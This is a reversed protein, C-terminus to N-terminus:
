CNKLYDRLALKWNRLRKFKTNLLISYRPRKALTKYELTQCPLIKIKLKKIKIIEKALKYWTTIGENTLHYIGAPRQSSLLEKTAQALDFTYTPKGFQDNIVKLEKKEKALKLITQVFNKHKKPEVYSGFLWFTRLLYFKFNPNQFKLNLIAQEGFLKSLGYKNVPNKPRDNERYGKKKKGDFVYDTSYHIFLAGIEACIKALSKVATANIKKAKVFEKEAKEVNTYATANIVIKPKLRKIKKEVEKQDTIDLNKRHWCIPKDKKFVFSLDSGLMGKAGLILIKNKDKWM